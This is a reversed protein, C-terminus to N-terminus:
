AVHRRRWYYAGTCLVGLAMLFGSLWLGRVYPKLYIRVAWTDESVPEAMALYLDTLGSLRIATETIPIQRVTYYRKEPKMLGIPQNYKSVAFVGQIGEYNDKKTKNLAQFEFQYPEIRLREGLKIQVDQEQSLHTTLLLAIVLGVAGLHSLVIGYYRLDRGHFRVLAYRVISYLVAFAATLWVADLVPWGSIWYTAALIGIFALAPKFHIESQKKWRILLGVSLLLLLGIGFPALSQNFYPPGVSLTQQWLGEAILPYVTGLLVIGCVVVLLLSALLLVSERSLWYLTPSSGTSRRLSVLIAPVTYLVVLLLIIKGRVPDSAFAHVSNLVGSRVLFTGILTLIFAWMGLHFATNYFSQKLESVKLVHLLSLCLLWPMLSANEVPDWFWYGGWGLEYYAWFSGLAIGLTLFFVALFVFSKLTRVSATTLVPLAQWRLAMCLAYLVACLAYGCYLLPPHIVFAWDQLLPNLDQGVQPPFPLLRLFPNSTWLLLAGIGVLICAYIGSAKKLVSDELPTRASLFFLTGWFSLLMYWLLLSGEHGGWIACVRYIGSLGHHANQAVYRVSLDLRYFSFALVLFAILATLLQLLHLQSRQSKTLPAIATVALLLALAWSLILSFHGIEPIM